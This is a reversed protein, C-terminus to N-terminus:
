ARGRLIAAEARRAARNGDGAAPFWRRGADPARTAAALSRVMLGVERVVGSGAPTSRWPRPPPPVVVTTGPSRGSARPAAATAKTSEYGMAPVHGREALEVGRPDRPANGGAKDSPAASSDAFPSSVAMAAEVSRGAQRPLPPEPTPQGRRVADMCARLYAAVEPGSCVQTAADESEGLSSRDADSLEKQFPRQISAARSHAVGPPPLSGGGTRSHAVTTQVASRSHAVGPAFPVVASRVRGGAVLERRALGATELEALLRKVTARSRGIRAGMSRNTLACAGGKRAADLLVAHLLKASQSVERSAATECPLPRFQYAIRPSAHVPSKVESRIPDM